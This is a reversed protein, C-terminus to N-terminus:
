WGAEKLLYVFTHGDMVVYGDGASAKGKRHAWVVALRAAANSKEIHAEKLWQGLEYRQASKAEIVVGPIGAIDGRDNAGAQARREVYPFHDALFAVVANEFRTGRAKSPNSM